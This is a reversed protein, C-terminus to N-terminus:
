GRELGLSKLGNEEFEEVIAPNVSRVKALLKHAEADRGQAFLTEVLLLRNRLKFIGTVSERYTLQADAKRFKAEADEIDGQLALRVGQMHLLTPWAESMSKVAGKEKATDLHKELRSEFAAATEWDGMECAARHTAAPLYSAPDANEVCKSDANALLEGWSRDVDLEATEVVCRWAAIERAMADDNDEWSEIADWAGAIDHQLVRAHVLHMYAPWFKPRIEIARVVSTEADVYRGQIMYLEGLSDHPNAQDPAIFRYSTFYEEAEAFRGQAMTIYGLQNYAVVWNPAVELLRRFLREATDSEGRHFAENAISEIVWPDDPYKEYYEEVLRAADALRKEHRAEALQIFFRERPRLRDLDAERVEEFLVKARDPEYWQLIDALVFKAFVFDPDLKVARELHDLADSQYLKMRAETGLEFEALAAPSSTTWEARNPLAVLSIAAAGVLVVVLGIWPYKRKM